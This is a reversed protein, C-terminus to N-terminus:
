FLRVEVNDYAVEYVGGYSLLGVHLEGVVPSM